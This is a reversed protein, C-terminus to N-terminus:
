EDLFDRLTKRKEIKIDEGMKHRHAVMKESNKPKYDFELKKKKLYKMGDATLFYKISGELKFPAKVKSLFDLDNNFIKFVKTATMMDLRYDISKDGDLMRKIFGRREKFFPSAKKKPLRKKFIHGCSCVKLSAASLLDCEPCSKKGKPM